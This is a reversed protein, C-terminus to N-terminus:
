GFEVHRIGAHQFLREWYRRIESAHPKEALNGQLVRVAVRDMMRPDVRMERLLVTDADAWEEAQTVSTPPAADFDRRPPRMSERMDSLYIVRLTAGSDARMLEDRIVEFTGLLDTRNRFRSPVQVTFLTSLDSQGVRLLTDMAQQHRMKEQAKHILTGDLTDPPRITNVVDMRDAKARTNEHVLFGRVADRRCALGSQLALTVSDRFMRATHPNAVSSASQDIFVLTQQSPRACPDPPTCSAAALTLLAGCAALRMVMPFRM